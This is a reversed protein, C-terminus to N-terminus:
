WPPPPLTQGQKFWPGPEVVGASTLVAIVRGHGDDYLRSGDGQLAPTWGGPVNHLQAMVRVVDAASHDPDPLAADFDLATLYLVEWADGAAHDASEDEALTTERRLQVQRRRELADDVAGAATLYATSAAISTDGFTRGRRRDRVMQRATLLMGTM